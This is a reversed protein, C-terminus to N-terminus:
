YAYFSELWFDFSDVTEPLRAVSFIPRATNLDSLNIPSSFAESHRANKFIFFSTLPNM